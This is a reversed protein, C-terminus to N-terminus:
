CKLKRKLIFNSNNLSTSLLDKDNFKDKLSSSSYFLYDEIRPEQDATARESLM